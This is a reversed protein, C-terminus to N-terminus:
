GAFFPVEGAPGDPLAFGVTAEPDLGKWDDVTAKLPPALLILPKLEPREIMTANTAGKMSYAYRINYEVWFHIAYTCVQCIYLVASDLM